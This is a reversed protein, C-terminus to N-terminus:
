KPKVRMERHTEQYVTAIDALKTRTDPSFRESRSGKAASQSALYVMRKMRVQDKRPSQHFEELIVRSSGEAAKSSSVNLLRRYEDTKRVEQVTGYGHRATSGAFRKFRESRSPALMVPLGPIQIMMKSQPHQLKWLLLLAALGALGLGVIITLEVAGVM